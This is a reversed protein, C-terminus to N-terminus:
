EAEDEEDHEWLESVRDLAMSLEGGHLCYCWVENGVRSGERRLFLLDGAGNHAIAVGDSPFGLQAELAAQTERCVDGAATRRLTERSTSDRLPFLFWAEGDLEVSGGNCRSMYMKYDLPLTAGLATETEAIRALAIPLAM